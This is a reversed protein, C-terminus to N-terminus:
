TIVFLVPRVGTAGVPVYNTLVEIAEQTLRVDTAIATSAIALTVAAYNDSTATFAGPAESSSALIAEVSSSINSYTAGGVYAALLSGFGAPAGSAAYSEGAYAAIWLTDQAAGPQTCAPATPTGAASVSFAATVASGHGTIRYVVYGALLAAQNTLTLADAASGLAIAAFVSLSQGSSSAAAGVLVWNASSLGPIPVLNGTGGLENAVLVILLDGANIGGPLTIPIAIYGVSDHVSTSQVVPASM